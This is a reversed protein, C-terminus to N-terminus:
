DRDKRNLAHGILSRCGLSNSHHLTEKAAAMLVKVVEFERLVQWEYTDAPVKTTKGISIPAVKYQSEYENVKVNDVTSMRKWSSIVVESHKIKAKKLLM